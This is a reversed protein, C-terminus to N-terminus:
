PSRVANFSVKTLVHKM